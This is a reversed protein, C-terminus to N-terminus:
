LYRYIVLNGMYFVTKNAPSLIHQSYERCYPLFGEGLLSISPTVSVTDPPSTGTRFSQPIPLVKGTGNIAPGSLVPITIDILTRYIDVYM